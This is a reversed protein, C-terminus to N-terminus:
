CFLYTTNLYIYTSLDMGIINKELHSLGDFDGIEMSRLLGHIGNSWAATSILSPTIFVELRGAEFM